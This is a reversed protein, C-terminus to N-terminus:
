GHRRDQDAARRGPGHLRLPAIRRAARTVPEQWVEEPSETSCVTKPSRPLLTQLPDLCHLFAFVRFKCPYPPGEWKPFIREVDTKPRRNKREGIKPANKCLRPRCRFNTVAQSIKRLRLM